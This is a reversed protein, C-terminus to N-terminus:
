LVQATSIGRRLGKYLRGYPTSDLEDASAAQEAVAYSYSTGDLSRRTVRGNPVLEPHASGLLHAAMYITALDAKAGWAPRSVRLAADALVVTWQADSISAFEAFRTVVDDKTIAM